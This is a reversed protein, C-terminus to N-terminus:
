KLQGGIIVELHCNHGGTVDSCYELALYPNGSAFFRHFSVWLDLVTAKLSSRWNVELKSRWIATIVELELNQNGSGFIRYFSVWFDLVTSKSTQGRIQVKLYYNHGGTVDSCYEQEIYPNGSRFIRHFYVWFDLVTSKSSQGGTSRWITTKVELSM